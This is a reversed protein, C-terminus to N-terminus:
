SNKDTQHISLDSSVTLLPAQNEQMIRILMRLAENVADANPFMKAVDPALRVTTGAFSKREPGLRRVQLTKLDYENRLDDDMTSKTPSM